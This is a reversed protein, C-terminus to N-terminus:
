DELFDEFHEETVPNRYDFRDSHVDKGLYETFSLNWFSNGQAYSYSKPFQGIKQYIHKMIKKGDEVSDVNVEICDDPCVTGLWTKNATSNIERAVAEIEHIKGTKGIYVIRFIM